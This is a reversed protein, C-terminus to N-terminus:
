ADFDGGLMRKAFACLKDRLFGAKMRYAKFYVYAAICKKLDAVGFKGSYFGQIVPKMELPKEVERYQVQTGLRKFDQPSADSKLIEADWGYNSKFWACISYDGMFPLLVSRLMEYTQKQECSSFYCMINRIFFLKVKDSATQSILWSYNELNEIDAAGVNKEIEREIYFLGEHLETLEGYRAYDALMNMLSFSSDSVPMISSQRVLEGDLLCCYYASKDAIEDLCFNEAFLRGNKDSGNFVCAGCEAMEALADQSYTIATDSFLIYRGASEAIAKQLAASRNQSGFVKVRSLIDESLPEIGQLDVKGCVSVDISVGCTFINSLFNKLGDGECAQPLIVSICIDNM